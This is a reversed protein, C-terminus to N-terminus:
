IIFIFFVIIFALRLEQNSKNWKATTVGEDCGDGDGVDGGSGDGGGCGGNRAHRIGPCLIPIHPMLLAPDGPCSM